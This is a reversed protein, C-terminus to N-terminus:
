QWQWKRCDYCNWLAFWFNLWVNFQARARMCVRKARSLEFVKETSVSARAINAHIYNIYMIYLLLFITCQIYEIQNSFMFPFLRSRFVCFCLYLFFFSLVAFQLCFTYIYIAISYMIHQVHHLACVRAANVNQVVCLWTWYWNYFKM